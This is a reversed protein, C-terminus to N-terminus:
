EISSKWMKVINQLPTQFTLSKWFSQKKRILFLCFYNNTQFNILNLYEIVLTIINILPLVPLLLGVSVPYTENTTTNKDHFVIIEDCHTQGFYTTPSWMGICYTRNKPFSIRHRILPEAYLVSILRCDKM